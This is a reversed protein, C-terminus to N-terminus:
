DRPQERKIQTREEALLDDFFKHIKYGLYMTVAVIALIGAKRVDLGFWAQAFYWAGFAILCVSLFLKWVTIM